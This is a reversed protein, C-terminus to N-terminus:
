MGAKMRAVLEAEAGDPLGAVPDEGERRARERLAGVLAAANAGTHIPGVKKGGRYFAFGPTLPVRLVDRFLVKTTENANGFFHAFVVGPTAAALAAVAPRFKKCPRCFTLSAQVCVLRDGAGAVLAEFDALSRLTLVEGPAARALLPPLDAPPATAEPAPSPAGRGDKEAEEEEEEELLRELSSLSGVAVALNRPPPPNAPM